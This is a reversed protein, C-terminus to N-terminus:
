KRRARGPLTYILFSEKSCLKIEHRRKAPRCRDDSRHDRGALWFVLIVIFSAHSIHLCCVVRQWAVRPLATHSRDTRKDTWMRMQREEVMDKECLLVEFSTRPM